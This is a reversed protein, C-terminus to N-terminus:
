GATGADPSQRDGEQGYDEETGPDLGQARRVYNIMDLIAQKGNEDLDSARLAIQEAMKESRYESRYQPLDDPTVDQDFFFRVPVGFATSLAQITKQSPNAIKGTRVKWITTSSVAGGALGAVERYSYEKGGPKVVTRFLLDVRETINV